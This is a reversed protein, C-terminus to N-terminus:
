IVYEMIYIKGYKFMNKEELKWCSSLCHNLTQSFEAACMEKKMILAFFCEMIPSRGTTLNMDMLIQPSCDDLLWLLLPCDLSEKIVDSRMHNVFYVHLMVSSTHKDISLM